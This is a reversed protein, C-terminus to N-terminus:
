PYVCIREKKGRLNDCATSYIGRREAPPGQSDDTEYPTYNDKGGEWWSKGTTVLLNTKFDTLTKKKKEQKILLNKQIM